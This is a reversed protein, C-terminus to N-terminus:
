VTCQPGVAMCDNLSLKSRANRMALNSVVRTKTSVSEPKLVAFTTIYNVPGHWLDMEEQSLRIVKNMEEVFGAHTGLSVMHREM